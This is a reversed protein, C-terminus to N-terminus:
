KDKGKSKIEKRAGEMAGEVLGTVTNGLVRTVKVMGKMILGGFKYQPTDKITMILRRM